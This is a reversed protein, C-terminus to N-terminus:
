ENRDPDNDHQDKLWRDWQEEEELEYLHSLADPKVLGLGYFHDILDRQVEVVYAKCEDLSGSFIKESIPFRCDQLLTDQLYEPIIFFSNDVLNLYVIHKM